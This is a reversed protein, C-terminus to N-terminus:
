QINISVNHEDSDEKICVWDVAVEVACDVKTVVETWNVEIGEISTVSPVIFVAFLYLGVYGSM